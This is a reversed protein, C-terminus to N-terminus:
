EAFTQIATAIEAVAPPLLCAYHDASLDVVRVPGDIMRAYSTASDPSGAARFLLARCGLRQRPRYGALLSTHATFVAFRREIEARMGQGLSDLLDDVTSGSPTGGADRVFLAALEVATDAYSLPTLYPADVQILDAVDAGLRVATEYAVVGGMSWGLLRYPGPGAARILAAYRDAMEALSAPPDASAEIGKVSYAGALAVALPAYGHVTGGVAHVAYLPPGDGPGIDLIPGRPATDVARRGARLRAALTARQEASLTM